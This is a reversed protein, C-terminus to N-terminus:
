VSHNTAANVAEDVEVVLGHSHLRGDSLVQLRQAM